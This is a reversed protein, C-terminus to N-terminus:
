VMRETNETPLTVDETHGNDQYRRQSLLESIDDDWEGDRKLIRQFFDSTHMRWSTAPIMRVHIDRGSIHDELVKTYVGSIRALIYAHDHNPLLVRCSPLTELLGSVLSLVKKKDGQIELFISTSGSVPIIYQIDIVDREQLVSLERQITQTNVDTEPIGKNLELGGLWPYTTVYDLIMAQKRTPPTVLDPNHCGYERKLEALSTVDQDLSDKIDSIRPRPKTNVTYTSYIIESIGRILRSAQQAAKPPLMM